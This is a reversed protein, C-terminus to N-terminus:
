EIVRRGTEAITKRDTKRGDACTQEDRIPTETPSACLFPGDPSAGDQGAYGSDATKQGAMRKEVTQKQRVIGVRVRLVPANEDEKRREQRAAWVLAPLVHMGPVRRGEGDAHACHPQTRRGGFRIYVRRAHAAPLTRRGYMGPARKKGASGIFTCRATGAM